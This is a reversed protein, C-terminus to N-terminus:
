KAVRARASASVATRVHRLSERIGPRRRSLLRVTEPHCVDLPMDPPEEVTTYLLTNQAYYYAVDPDDWVRPRILDVPYLGHGAFLAAWYSQWQPNIHGTGAQGPIAASFLVAPASQVLVEVLAPGADEPLHEAVELSVALDFRDSFPAPTRLDQAVFSSRPIELWDLDVHHGDVGLIRDVGADAFERLWVGTGCGFDVVSTPHLRAMVMEVIKKASLATVDRNGEFFGSGYLEADTM